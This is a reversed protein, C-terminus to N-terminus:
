YSKGAYVYYEAPKDCIICKENKVKKSDIWLTKAGNTKSKMIDECKEDKCLPILGIKKDLLANKLEELTNADTLKSLFLRKSKNFLGEQIEDLSKEVFKKADAVKVFEKKFNDRRVVVVQKKDIDKPGIEIRIPIGKLEWENFKFGVSINERKDVFANFSKLEKAVENCAKLVKDKSDEFLIPVIVVSNLAIKPPIILGKDDSHNTFMIGLNRTTIAYTNQYGYEEKGEPNLFKIDFSKAFNQGDYHFPSGEACKGNPMIYHFKWSEVAGAFKEKETKKGFIGYIAMHNECVDKYVEMVEKREDLAEKESACVTHLENWLFERGRFFPVPHKFEWRVVNNWQNLRLPLDRWSRIWKSFSPYMIAESTPRIALREALKTDGAKEVWAVEPSFGQVHEKEKNLFREPIFLPFYCNRIGIKKFREDILQQIKQWLEYSAPKFVICGSVETYDALDSKIM